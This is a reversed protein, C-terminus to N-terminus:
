PRIPSDQREPSPTLGVGAAALPRPQYRYLRYRERDRPRAGEWIKTWGDSAPVEEVGSQVLLADCQSGRGIEIRETVIGAHHHFVARQVEGLGISAICRPPPDLAARASRAVPGYTKGYDIWGIWLTMTLGWVLALGACWYPLARLSSIETRLVYWIWAATLLIAAVVYLPQVAPQFGPELKAVNAAVRAPAGTIMAFWLFWLAGALLGATMLAFWALANAAGRRLERAVVGAPIALPVILVLADPERSDSSFVLLLLAVIAAVLPVAFGPNRLTRRYAWAAWLALPWAPWASWAISKLYERSVVWRPVRTLGAWQADLWAQRYPADVHGVLALWTGAVLVLVALGLVVARSYSKAHAALAFPVLLVAAIVPAAAAALGDALFASATALGFVIGAKLPKKWAIAVGYYAAAVAALSAVAPTTERAHILVGLSGLLALVSLDAAAPGYLERSALRVFYLAALVMALSAIRAADHMPLLFGFLKASAAALWFYLPGAATYPEGALTLSIWSRWSTGELMAHVVGAGIADETKWPDHGFLGPLLFIAVFAALALGRPPLAALPSPSGKGSLSAM